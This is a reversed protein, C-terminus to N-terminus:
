TLTVELHDPTPAGAGSRQASTIATSIREAPTGADLTVRSGAPCTETTRMYLTTESIVESKDSARVLRRKDDRFCQVDAAPGYTPGFPGDGTFPEVRVTPLDPMIETLVDLIEM